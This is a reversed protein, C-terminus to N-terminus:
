VQIQFLVESCIECFVINRMNDTARINHSCLWPRDTGMLATIRVSNSGSEREIQIPLALHNASDVSLTDGVSPVVERDGFYCKSVHAYTQQNWAGRWLPNPIIENFCNGNWGINM